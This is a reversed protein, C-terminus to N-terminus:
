MGERPKLSAASLATLFPKLHNHRRQAFSQFVSKANDLQRIAEDIRRKLEQEESEFLATKEELVKRAQQVETM